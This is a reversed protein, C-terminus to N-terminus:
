HRQCVLFWWSGKTQSYYRVIARLERLDNMFAVYEKEISM